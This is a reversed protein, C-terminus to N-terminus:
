AHLAECISDILKYIEASNHDANISIRLRATNLPVTPPRIAAVFFGQALIKNQLALIDVAAAVLVARIPTLDSAALRLGKSEAYSNFLNINAMLKQRRWNEKTLVQMAQLIAMCVAPAIATSFGYSRAYQLIYNIVDERGAVIAGTANFAKGLPLVVCTLDNQQLSFHDIVGRGSEGLVGIGHADDIILKSGYQDAAAILEPVPAIDGDMSFVSESIILDPPTAKALSHLQALAGHNFRYHKARALVVGDLISAHCLKDTFVSDGRKALASIISTNACYGSNFIIAKDFGLWAAFEQELLAHADSYGSILPSAGSGFGYKDIGCYLAQIIEPHKHLGLYDNSAFDIYSKNNIIVQKADIRKVIRCTRYLNKNKRGQLEQQLNEITM